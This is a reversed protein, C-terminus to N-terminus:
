QDVFGRVDGTGTTTNVALTTTGSSHRGSWRQKSYQANRNRRRAPSQTRVADQLHRSAQAALASGGTGNGPQLTFSLKAASGAVINLGNSVVIGATTSVTNGTATLTYGAGAKDISLGSFTAKRQRTSRLGNNNRELIWGPGRQEPDDATVNRHLEPSPIEAPM